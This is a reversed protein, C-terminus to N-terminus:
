GSPKDSRYKRRYPWQSRYAPCVAVQSGNLRVVECSCTTAPSMSILFGQYCRFNETMLNSAASLRGIANAQAKAPNSANEWCPMRPAARPRARGAPAASPATRRSHRGADVDSGLMARDARRNGHRCLARGGSCSKSSTQRVTLPLQFAASPSYRPRSNVGTRRGCRSRSSRCPRGTVADNAAGSSKPKWCSM